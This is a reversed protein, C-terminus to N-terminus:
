TTVGVRAWGQVTGQPRGSVTFPTRGDYEDATLRTPMRTTGSIGAAQGNVPADLQTVAPPEQRPDGHQRARRRRPGSRDVRHCGYGPEQVEILQHGTQH